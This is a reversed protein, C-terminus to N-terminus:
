CAGRRLSSLTDLCRQSSVMSANQMDLTMRTDNLLTLSGHCVFRLSLLGFPWDPELGPQKSFLSGVVVVLSSSTEPQKYMHSAQIRVRPLCPWLALMLCVRPLPASSFVSLRRLIECSADRLHSRLVLRQEKPWNLAGALVICTRWCRTLPLKSLPSALHLM